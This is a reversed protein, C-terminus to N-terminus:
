FLRFTIINEKCSPSFKADLQIMNSYEMRAQSLLILTAILIDLAFTFNFLYFLRIIKSSKHYSAGHSGRLVGWLINKWQPKTMQCYRSCLPWKIFIQLICSLIFQSHTFPLLFTAYSDIKRRLPYKFIVKSDECVKQASGRKLCYMHLASLLATLRKWCM